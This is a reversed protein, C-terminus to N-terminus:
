LDRREVRWLLASLDEDPYQDRYAKKRRNLADQAFDLQPLPVVYEYERERNSPDALPSTAESM